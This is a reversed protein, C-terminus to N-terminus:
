VHDLQPPPPPATPHQQHDDISIIFAFFTSEPQLPQAPSEFSVGGVRWRFRGVRKCSKCLPASRASIAPFSRIWKASGTVSSHISDDVFSRAALDDDSPGEEIMM